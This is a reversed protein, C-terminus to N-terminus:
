KHTHEKTTALIRHMRPKKRGKGFPMKTSAWQSRLRAPFSPAVGRKTAAWDRPHGYRRKLRRPHKLPLIRLRGFPPFRQPFFNVHPIIPTNNKPDKPTSVKPLNRNNRLWIDFGNRGLFFLSIRYFVMSSTSTILRWFIRSVFVFCTAQLHVSKWSMSSFKM